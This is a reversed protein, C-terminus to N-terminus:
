IWKGDELGESGIEFRDLLSKIGIKIVLEAFEAGICARTGLGFPMFEGNKKKDKLEEESILRVPKANKEVQKDHRLRDPNFDLPRDFVQSNLHHGGQAVLFRTGKSIKVGAM